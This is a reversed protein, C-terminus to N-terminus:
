FSIDGLDGVTDVENPFIQNLNRHVGIFKINAREACEMDSLSDGFFVVQESNLSYDAFCQEILGTKPKRCKCNENIKHVCVYIRTISDQNGIKLESSLKLHIEDLQAKTILGLGVCQQNTIVFIKKNAHLAKSIFIKADDYIVLERPDLVYKSGTTHENLVGDRDLFIVTVKDSIRLMSKETLL